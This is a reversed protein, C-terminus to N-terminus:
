GACALPHTIRNRLVVSSPPGHDPPAVRWALEDCHQGNHRDPQPGGERHASCCRGYWNIPQPALGVVPTDTSGRRSQCKAGRHRVAAARLSAHTKTRVAGLAPSSAPGDARPPVPTGCPAVRGGRRAVPPVRAITSELAREHSHPLLRPPILVSAVRQHPLAVDIPQPPGELAFPPREDHAHPRGPESCLVAMRIGESVKVFAPARPVFERAGFCSRSAVKVDELVRALVPARPVLVRARTRGLPPMQVHEPVRVLVPTRPVLPRARRCCLLAVEVHELVRVLVPARPILPRAFDGDISAVQIHELVRM